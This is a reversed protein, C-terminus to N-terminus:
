KPVEFIQFTSEKVKAEKYFLCVHGYNHLNVDSNKNSEVSWGIQKQSMLMIKIVGGRYYFKFDFITM